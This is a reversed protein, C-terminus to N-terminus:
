GEAHEPTYVFQTFTAKGDDSRGIALHTVGRKHLNGADDKYPLVEPKGTKLVRVQAKLIDADQYTRGGKAFALGQEAVYALLKDSASPAATPKEVVPAAQEVAEVIPAPTAFQGQTLLQLITALAEGQTAVTEALKATTIRTAM